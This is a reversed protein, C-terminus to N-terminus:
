ILKSWPDNLSQHIRLVGLTVGMFTVLLRYVPGLQM